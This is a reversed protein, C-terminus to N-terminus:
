QWWPQGRTQAMSGVRNDDTRSLTISFEVKRPRGNTDLYSGTQQISEILYAGYVTGDGDVLAYAQGQDGMARLTDLSELTGSIEPTLVGSLTFTDEGPGTFQRAARAGVRANSAHRWQTQRQLQQHALTSMSFVFQDLSMLM